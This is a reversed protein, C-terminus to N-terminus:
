RGATGPRTPPTVEGSVSGPISRSYFNNEEDSERVTLFADVTAGLVHGSTAPLSIQACLEGGQGSALQGASVAGGPPVLGDITFAVSFPGADGRGINDIVACVLKQSSGPAPLIKIQLVRLDPLVTARTDSVIDTAGGSLPAAAAPTAAGLSAPLFSLAFASIALFRSASAITATNSM